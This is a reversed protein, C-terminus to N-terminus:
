WDVAHQVAGAARRAAKLSGASFATDSNDAIKIRSEDVKIMTRQVLPTFPVVPPRIDLGHDSEDMSTNGSQKLQQELDKSLANVFSLYETSHVRSLLDLKAREFEQSVTVEHPFIGSTETAGTSDSSPVVRRLISTVRDPAEWDSSSKPHHELCEPHHLVLTRSNPSRILLNARTEKRELSSDRLAKNLEKSMKKSAQKSERKRISALSGEDDLFGEAAVDLPRKFKGDAVAPRAGSELLVSVVAIGRYGARMAWHLPTEGAANKADLTANKFLLQSVVDKAGARAAWHLPTNGRNDERAADAGAQLLRRVIEAGHQEPRGMMLGLACATHLPCYGAEDPRQLVGDSQNVVKTLLNELKEVDMDCVAQHLPTRGYATGPGCVAPMNNSSPSYYHNGTALLDPPPPPLIMQSDAILPSLLENKAAMDDDVLAKLQGEWPTVPSDEDGGHRKRAAFDLHDPNVIQLSLGKSNNNNNGASFLPPMPPAEKLSDSTSPPPTPPGDDDDDDGPPTAAVGALMRAAAIEALKRKGTAAPSPEPFGKRLSSTPDPAAIKMAGGGGSRRVWSPFASGPTTSFGHRPPPPPSSTASMPAAM